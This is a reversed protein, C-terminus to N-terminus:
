AWTLYASTGLVPEPVYRYCPGTRYDIECYRGTYGYVCACRNPGICRGGNECEKHCVPEQCFEGAYGPRCVCEGTEESCTGGNLCTSSCGSSSSSNRNGDTSLCTPAMRGKPCLCVGPKVCRGSSCDGPCLPTLCLGSFGRQSWGPCCFSLSNSWCVNPGGRPPTVDGGILSAGSSDDPGQDGRQFRAFTRRGSGGLPFFCLLLLLSLNALDVKYLGM